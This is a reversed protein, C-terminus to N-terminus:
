EVMSMNVMFDGNWWVGGCLTDWASSSFYFRARRCSAAKALTNVMSYAMLREEDPTLGSTGTVFTASLNVLLTDGEVSFGLIDADGLYDPLLSRYGLAAETVTPGDLLQLLLARPNRAAYYPMPRHVEVLREGHVLYLVAVDELYAAFDSRTMRGDPFSIMRNESTLVSTLLRGGVWYEVATLSPIFTTLTYTLSAYFGAPDVDAERLTAELGEAFRLTAVREGTDSQTNIQPAYLMLGEVDPMPSAVTLVQPGASLAQVLGAALQAPSQGVFSVDRTEALIGTGGATPFFLTANATLSVLSADEGLAPKRADLQNWSAELDADTQATVTGLPLAATIDMAVAQGSVLVNLSEVGYPALTAAMGQCARYFSPHDLQLASAALTVTCVGCSIEVPNVGALQLRVDGGLADVRRNAEFSFLARLVTEAPHQGHNLTLQVQQALLRSHDRSPLMLEVQATYDLAADGVPATYPQAAPPLTASVGSDTIQRQTSTCGGLLLTLCLLAALSRKHVLREEKM